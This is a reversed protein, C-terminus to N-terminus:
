AFRSYIGTILSLITIALTMGLHNLVVGKITNVLLVLIHTFLSVIGQENTKSTSLREKEVTTVTTTKDTSVTQVVEKNDNQRNYGEDKNLTSKDGGAFTIYLSLIVTRALNLITTIM